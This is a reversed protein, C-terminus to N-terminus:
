GKLWSIRVPLLWWPGHEEAPVGLGISIERFEIDGLQLGRFLNAAQTAIQRAELSGTGKPVIVNLFLEGEEQWREELRDGAGISAQDWINGTVQVEIFPRAPNPKAFGENDWALPTATWHEVLYARILSYAGDTSM